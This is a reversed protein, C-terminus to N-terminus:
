PWQKGDFVVSICQNRVERQIHKREAKSVFSILHSTERINGVFYASDGILGQFCQLKYLQIGAWQFCMLVKVHYTNSTICTNSTLSCLHVERNIWRCSATMVFWHTQSTGKGRSNAELRKKAASQKALKVRLKITSCVRRFTNRMVHQAFCNEGSVTQQRSENERAPKRPHMWDRTWETNFETGYM